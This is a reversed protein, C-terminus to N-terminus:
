TGKYRHDEDVREKLDNPLTKPAIPSDILKVQIITVTLVLGLTVEPTNDPCGSYEAM